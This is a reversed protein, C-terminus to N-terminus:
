RLNAAKIDKLTFQKELSGIKYIEPFAFLLLLPDIADSTANDANLYELNLRYPLDQCSYGLYEKITGWSIPLQQDRKSIKSSLFLTIRTGKFRGVGENRQEDLRILRTPGDIKLIRKTTDGRSSEWIATEVEVHDALLFTSLFGIGFESVPAFDM